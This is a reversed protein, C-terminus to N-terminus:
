CDTLHNNSKNVWTKWELKVPANHHLEVWVRRDPRTVVMLHYIFVFSLGAGTGDVTTRKWLTTPIKEMRLKAM